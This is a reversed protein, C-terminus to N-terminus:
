PLLDAVPISAVVAGDLVLAVSSGLAFDQRQAYSPAGTPGSPQTYVEVQHAVLNIIWYTPIGVQAYIRGKDDRDRQLSTDAVEVALGVDAAGPHRSLYSREDGRVVALDPEPESDPLTIASQIRIDWGSPLAVTLRRRVIQITGDHPPNRPMKLVVYGELLEVRDTEDLIGADIMQHYEDVTFRRLSYLNCSLPIAATASSM